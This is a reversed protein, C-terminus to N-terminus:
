ARVTWTVQFSEADQFRKTGPDFMRRTAECKIGDMHYEFYSWRDTQTSSGTCIIPFPALDCRPLFYPTHRHGHLWLSVGGQAAVAVVQALDRLGHYFYERKGDALCVPYHTVLVRPGPSLKSFLIQLRALQEPGVSGAADWPTVNGTASNM